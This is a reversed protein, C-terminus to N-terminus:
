KRGETEKITIDGREREKLCYQKGTEKKNDKEINIIIQKGRDRDDNYRREGEGKSLM